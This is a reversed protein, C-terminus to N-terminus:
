ETLNKIALEQSKTIAEIAIDQQEDPLVDVIEGMKESFWDQRSDGNAKASELEMENVQLSDLMRLMEKLDLLDAEALGNNAAFAEIIADVNSKDNATEYAEILSQFLQKFEQTNEM